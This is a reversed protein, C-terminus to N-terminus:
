PLTLRYGSLTIDCAGSTALQYTSGTPIVQRGRWSAYQQTGLGGFTNVWITQGLAGILRCTAAAAGAYYVDLDRLIYKYGSPVPFALSTGNLGVVQFILISYTPPLAM